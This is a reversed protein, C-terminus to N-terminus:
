LKRGMMYAYMGRQADDRNCLMLGNFKATTVGCHGAHGLNILQAVVQLSYPTFTVVAHAPTDQYADRYRLV